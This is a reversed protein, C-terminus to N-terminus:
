DLESINTIQNIHSKDARPFCFYYLYVKYLQATEHKCVRNSLDNTTLNIVELPYGFKVRGPNIIMRKM